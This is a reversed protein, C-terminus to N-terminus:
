GDPEGGHVTGVTSLMGADDPGANRRDLSLRSVRAGGSVPVPVSGSPHRVGTERGHKM